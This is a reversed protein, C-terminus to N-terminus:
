YLFSYVSFHYIRFIPFSDSLAHLFGSPLRCIYDTPRIIPFIQPCTLKFMFRFLVTIHPSLSSFSLSSSVHLFIFTISVPNPRPEVSFKVPATRCCEFYCMRESYRLFRLLCLPHHHRRLSSRHRSVDSILISTATTRSYLTTTLSRALQWRRIRSSQDPTTTGGPTTTGRAWYVWLLRRRRRCWHLRQRAAAEARM